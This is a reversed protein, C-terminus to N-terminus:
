TKEERIFCDFPNGNEFPSVKAIVPQRALFRDRGRPVLSPPSAHRAEVKTLRELTFPVVNGRAESSPLVAAALSTPRPVNRRICRPPAPAGQDHVVL